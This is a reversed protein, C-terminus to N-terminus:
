GGYRLLVKASNAPPPEPTSRLVMDVCMLSLVVPMTAYLMPM